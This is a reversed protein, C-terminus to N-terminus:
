PAAAPGADAVPDGAIADVALVAAGIAPTAVIAISGDVFGEGAPRWRPRRVAPPRHARGIPRQDASASARDVGPRQGVVALGTAM